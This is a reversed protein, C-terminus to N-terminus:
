CRDASYDACISSIFCCDYFLHQNNLL